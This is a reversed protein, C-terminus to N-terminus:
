DGWWRRAVGTHGPAEDPVVEAAAEVAEEAVVSTPVEEVISEQTDLAAEATDAQTDAVDAVAEAEAEVIAVAAEAEVTAIEVAAEAEVTAIEVAAEADSTGGAGGEAIADAMTEVAEPDDLPIVAEPGAEGIVAQVGVIAGEQAKYHTDPPGAMAWTLFRERQFRPNTKELKDATSEAVAMRQEDTLGPMEYISQAMLEFHKRTAIVGGEAMGFGEQNLEEATRGDSVEEIVDVIYASDPELEVERERAYAEAEAESDFWVPESEPLYGPMNEVVAYVKIHDLGVIGGESEMEEMTSFRGSEVVGGEALERGSIMRKVVVDGHPEFRTYRKHMEADAADLADSENDYTRGLTTWKGGSRTVLINTDPGPKYAEARRIHDPKVVGGEAMRKSFTVKSM